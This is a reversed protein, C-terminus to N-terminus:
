NTAHTPFIVHGEVSLIEYIIQIQQLKGYKTNIYIRYHLKCKRNLKTKVLNM